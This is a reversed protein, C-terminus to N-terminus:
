GADRGDHLLIGLATKGFTVAASGVQVRVQDDSEEMTVREVADITAETATLVHLFYDTAAPRPPSIEVRCEPAPGTDREPAYTHGGYRYLDQGHHLTVEADRPLLTQVFLRGKGNTIVLNPPKGEPRKMAQLLWTKKLQPDGSTVRDFVVFTGPRLFLIQRTFERMKTPGYARTCDGAVYVYRGGDQFALIDAIDYLPRDKEWQEADAVAGNHHPWHHAQGGDNGTVQGARINPWTESPDHVLMTNHAISRLHYNVDHPSGFADYHGGDGALEEHKYILFHGVDLHQHATFRDGCKFFFYTADDDWSSRAYVYGPGRSIHALPFHKLDASPM